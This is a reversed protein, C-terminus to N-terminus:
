AVELLPAQRYPSLDRRLYKRFWVWLRAQLQHPMIGMLAARDRIVTGIREYVTVSHGYYCHLSGPHIGFLQCMLTDVVVRRSEWPDYICEAFDVLKPGSLIDLVTDWSWGPGDLAMIEACKDYTLSLITNQPEGFEAIELARRKNTEWRTRQSLASLVGIAQEVTPIDFFRVLAHAFANADYYWTDGEDKVYEDMVDLVFDIISNVRVELPYLRQLQSLM